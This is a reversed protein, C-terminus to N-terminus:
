ILDSCYQASRSQVNRAMLLYLTTPRGTFLHVSSKHFPSLSSPPPRMCCILTSFKSSFGLGATSKQFRQLNHPMRANEVNYHNKLLLHNCIEQKKWQLHVCAPKKPHLRVPVVVFRRLGILLALNVLTSDKLKAYPLISNRAFIGLPSQSHGPLIFVNQLMLKCSSIYILSELVQATEKPMSGKVVM